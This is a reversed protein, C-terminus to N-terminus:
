LRYGDVHFKAFCKNAFHNPRGCRFCCQIIEDEESSYDTSNEECVDAFHDDEEESSYDTSNEECKDAFHDNGGCVFCQDSAGRCMRELVNKEASSLHVSM